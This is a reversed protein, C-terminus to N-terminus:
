RDREALIRLYVYGRLHQSEGPNLRVNKHEEVQRTGGSPTSVARALLLSVTKRQGCTNKLTYGDGVLIVCQDASATSVSLASGMACLFGSIFSRLRVAWVLVCSVGM